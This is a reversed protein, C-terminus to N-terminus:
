PVYVESTMPALERIRAKLRQGLEHDKVVENIARDVDSLGVPVDVPEFDARSQTGCSKLLGRRFLMKLSNSCAVPSMNLIEALEKIKPARGHTYRFERLGDLVM